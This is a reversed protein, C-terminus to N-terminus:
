KSGQPNDNELRRNYPNPPSQWTAPHSKVLPRSFQTLLGWALANLYYREKVAQLGRNAVSLINHQPFQGDM